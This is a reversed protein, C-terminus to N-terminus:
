WSTGERPIWPSCDRKGSCATLTSWPTPRRRATAAVVAVVTTRLDLTALVRTLERDVAPWIRGRNRAAALADRREPSFGPQRPDTLLLRGAAEDVVPVYGM